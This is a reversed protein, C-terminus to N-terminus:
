IVHGKFISEDKERFFAATVVKIITERNLEDCEFRGIAYPQMPCKARDFVCTPRDEPAVSVAAIQGITKVYDAIKV